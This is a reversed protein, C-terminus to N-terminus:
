LKAKGGGAGRMHAGTDKLARVAEIVTPAATGIPLRVRELIESQTTRMYPNTKAEAAVTSPVTCRNSDRQSQAWRLKAAIEENSPEM